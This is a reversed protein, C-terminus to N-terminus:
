AVGLDPAASDNVGPNLIHNDDGMQIWTKTIKHLIMGIVWGGPCAVRQAIQKQKAM